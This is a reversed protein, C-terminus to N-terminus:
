GTFEVIGEYQQAQLFNIGLLSDMNLFTNQATIKRLPENNKQKEMACCGFQFLIFWNFSSSITAFPLM